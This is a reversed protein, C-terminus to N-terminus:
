VMKLLSWFWGLKDHTKSKKPNTLLGWYPSFYLGMAARGQMMANRYKDRDWALMDPPAYGDFYSKAFIELEELFM